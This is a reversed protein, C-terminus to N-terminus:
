SGALIKIEFDDIGYGKSVEIESGWIEISLFKEESEDYFDYYTVEQGDVNQGRGEGQVRATGQEDLYYTVGEVELQKPIPETLKLKIKEYIGLELEDDMEVGLWITKGDGQLQYDYWKYGHDNFILKGVVEYDELDYTIIDNININFFNREEVIPKTEKGKFLRSFLGLIM